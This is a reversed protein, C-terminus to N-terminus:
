AQCSKGRALSRDMMKTGQAKEKAKLPNESALDMFSSLFIFGFVFYFFWGVLFFGEPV